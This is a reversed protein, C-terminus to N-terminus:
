IASFLYRHTNGKDRITKIQRVATVKVQFSVSEQDTKPKDAVNFNISYDNM